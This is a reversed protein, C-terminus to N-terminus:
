SPKHDFTYEGLLREGDKDVALMRVVLVNAGMAKARNIPENFIIQGRATHFPVDPLRLRETGSVDCLSLDVQPCEKLDAGGLRGILLDDNPTVTCDVKGGRPPAYQRIRFGERELRDLFADSIVVRLNGARALDRIGNSLAIAEELRAGCEECALLHEEARQEAAADLEGLWYYDGWM